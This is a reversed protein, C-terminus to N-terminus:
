AALALRPVATSGFATRLAARFAAETFHARAYTVQGACREAWLADDLLLEVVAEAFAAAGAHVPAVEALGPLGQAGVPTTVLPVGDRLAEVVKLKVGAGVRLPVVAVRAAAYQALLEADSVDALVRVAGGHLARVRVTPHSGVISLQADPVLARVIPLIEAVLWLAADVNPPHGFGAVFLIDRGSPPRRPEGFRDFCYPLLAHVNARPEMALVASAEEQSPYLVGDVARWLARERLETNDALRLLIEDRMLTGQMRLRSFHLDHGYYFVPAACHARLVPLCTEAVDPRCLVIRDLQGGNEALWSDLPEQHPGHFVEVGLEQLAEVYGSRYLLNFPWYKVVAGDALLARLMCVITRSGADRDPEPVQNDIVLVVQRHRAHERARLVQAANLFHESALTKRWVAAFSRRNVAQYAKLGIAVDRGHSAGEHHVVVSRPQYLTKLGRARLRFCLDADEFYAPAYRQDFGGMERFLASPVLLSAASCYDVTRVYNYVPRAPNDGRGYNWGSADRWIIGGAEQLRGDPYILKSGVAGVDSHTDFLTLMSDLWGPQVQTDNNLFLLFRGRAMGAALNCSRLYGLNRANRVLRIGHVRDLDRREEGPFADDVVIVEISAAPPHAAISALCCLTFGTQGYTPIIVSVVPRETCPLWLAAPDDATLLVPAAPNPSEHRLRRARRWNAFQTRLQGTVSWWFLLVARRLHRALRPHRTALRQALALILRLAGDILSAGPQRVCAALAPRLGVPRQREIM